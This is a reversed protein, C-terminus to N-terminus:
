GDAGGGGSMVGVLPAWDDGGGGDDLQASDGERRAWTRPRPLDPEIPGLEFKKPITSHQREPQTLDIHNKLKHHFNRSALLELNFGLRLGRRM